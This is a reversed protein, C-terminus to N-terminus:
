RNSAYRRRQPSRLPLRLTERHAWQIASYFREPGATRYAARMRAMQRGGREGWHQGAKKMRTQVVHRHGSEVIGSGILLGQEVYERYKMRSANRRYYRVLDNIAQVQAQSSADELCAMLEGVLADNDGEYLLAEARTKWLPLLLSEEGLLEKACTMAHEVAHHWDLIQQALPCLAAALNWVGLAGDGIYVVRKPRNAQEVKLAASLEQKFEEQEGLVCAYRAQTLQGRRVERHSVHHEARFMVGLKAESWKGRMPVMGGDSMVYLIESEEEEPPLLASQLTQADCEDVQNGLRKAVQRFQNASVRNPYHFNWRREAVEYADNVAFDALRKTLEESADGERPLGLFEDLPFFGAKCQECFHYNRRITHRGSLSQFSRVV